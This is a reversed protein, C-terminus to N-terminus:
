GSLLDVVQEEWVWRGVVVDVNTGDALVIRVVGALPDEHDGRHRDVRAGQEILPVWTATDLM